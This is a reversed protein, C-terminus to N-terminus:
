RWVLLLYVVGTIDAGNRKRFGAMRISLGLQLQKRTDAILNDIQTLPKHLM